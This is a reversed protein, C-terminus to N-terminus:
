RDSRMAELERHALFLVLAMATAMILLYGVLVLPTAHEGYKLDTCPVALWERVLSGHAPPVGGAQRDYTSWDWTSCRARARVYLALLVLPPGTLTALPAGLAIARSNMWLGLTLVLACATGPVLLPLAAIQLVAGIGTIIGVTMFIFGYTVSGIPIAALLILFARRWFLRRDTM